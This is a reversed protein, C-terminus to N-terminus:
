NSSNNRFMHDASSSTLSFGLFHIFQDTGVSPAATLKSLRPSSSTRERVPTLQRVGVFLNWRMVAFFSIAGNIEFLKCKRVTLM